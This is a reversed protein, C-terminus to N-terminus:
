VGKLIEIMTPNYPPTYVEKLSEIKTPNYPSTNVGKFSEITTPTILPHTYRQTRPHATHVAYQGPQDHLLVRLLVLEAVEGPFCTMFKTSNSM